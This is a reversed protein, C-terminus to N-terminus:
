SSLGNEIEDIYYKYYILECEWFIGSKFRSAPDVRNGVGTFVRCDNIKNNNEAEFVL